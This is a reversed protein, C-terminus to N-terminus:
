HPPIQGALQHLHVTFAIYLAVASFTVLAFRWDFMKWLIATVLLVEFLTPIINFVALRLVAEIGAPAASSRGRFGARDAPRPPLAPQAPAPARVDALAVKRITRQQVSAFVADRLEAFGSSAM